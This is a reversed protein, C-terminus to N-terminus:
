GDIDFGFSDKSIGVDMTYKEGDFSHFIDTVIYNGSMYNDINDLNDTMGTKNIEIGIKSGPSLDFDGNLNIDHSMFGMTRYCAQKKLITPNSITHYNASEFMKSNVSLNYDMSGTLNQYKTGDVNSNKSYTNNRNLKVRNDKSRYYTKSCSKNSYDLALVNSAYAGDGILHYQSIDLRSNFDLIQNINNEFYTDSGVPSDLKSNLFPTYTYDRYNDKQVMNYFSDLTLGDNVTEFLFYPTGDDSSNRLLWIAADLPRLNPIIGIISGKTSASLINIDSGLDKSIINSIIKSPTNNFSRSIFKTNNTYMHKSVCTFKYTQVGTSQRVFTDIAGIYCEIVKTKRDGKSSPEIRSFSITIKENGIIRAEELMNIADVIFLETEVTASFISETIGINEILDKIDIPINQNSILIASELTYSTPTIAVGNATGSGIFSTM